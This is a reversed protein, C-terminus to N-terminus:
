NGRQKMGSLYPMTRSALRTDSKLMGAEDALIHAAEQLYVDKADKAAKEAAIEAALSREDGQLGDDARAAGKLVLNTKKPATPNPAQDRQEKSGPGAVPEDAKGQNGALRSERLRAKSEQNDREKRRVAENLSIVNDKRLKLAESIDQQIDLFEKDRAIRGDHRKQLPGVLEKLDGSPLYTAPKIQVWPLANDYSSEGFNETDATVPLKIDPTVGRLQTTGGNIRFFQAITMKLEGYKTKENQSFRDLNILTQVTGKGFSPEGIVIGRGYDQIAAAFIESASASGRNILVGM